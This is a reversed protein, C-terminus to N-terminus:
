RTEAAIGGAADEHVVSQGYLLQFIEARQVHREPVFRTAQHQDTGSHITRWHLFELPRNLGRRM